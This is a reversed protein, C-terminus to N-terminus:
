PMVSPCPQRPATLFEMIPAALGVLVHGRDPLISADLDPLLASLRNATERSRLLVDQEGAILFVPMTLHKLEDDAFLPVSLRPKFHNAILRSYGIAEEPLATNGNVLRVMRDQGWQGLLMLPVAKWLFAANAPAVGSPCLLALKDIREPRACAYKIALFGGLSIGLLCTRRIGLVQLVDDLWEVYEPGTLEPRAPESKGPEGPIDLAYVRFRRCYEAVDGIWMVANSSSGHLLILPSAAPDGCAIAATSGLRTPIALQEYPVPWRDLVSDYFALIANQGSASKWISSANM